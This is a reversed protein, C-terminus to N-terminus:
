KLAYTTLSVAYTQSNGTETGGSVVAISTIDMIQLNTEVDKVFNEFNPYTGNVSFGVKVEELESNTATTEASGRRGQNPEEATFKVEALTVGNQSAIKALTNFIRAQDPNSAIM